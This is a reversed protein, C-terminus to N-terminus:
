NPMGYIGTSTSTVITMKRVEDVGSGSTFAMVQGKWTFLGDSAGFLLEFFYEATLANIAQYITEDYNCEFTMDPAEILGFINTKYKPQSLDTTDLKSPSAGLDPYTIIDALKTFTGGALTNASTLANTLGACTGNAVSINLTSDDEKAIINTLTIVAGTGGVTYMLPIYANANMATRIKGAVLTATDSLAVAVSLTIPSGVLNKGTVIVTANGATSITGVVTATEIQLACTASYKLITEATIVAM